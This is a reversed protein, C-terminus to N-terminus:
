SLIFLKIDEKTTIEGRMQAEYLRNLLITFEKSPKLGLAILDKGGILPQLKKTFVNLEKAKKILKEIAEKKTPYYAQLYPAFLNIPIKAALKYITYDTINDLNFTTEKIKFITQTLKKDQTLKNLFTHSSEKSLPTILIALLLALEKSATDIAHLMALCDRKHVTQFENFFALTGLKKLLILAQSPRKALLLMKKFEEFIREKPLEELAGSSVMSQCLLFLKKDIKLHFRASFAVARLIRLPDEQFTETDVAKLVRKKLDDRGNYPDLIKNKEIDYGIANITFDRRKAASKFDIDQLLTVSFGRHGKAIKEERRPLAFDLQIDKYNLKCVGFHKGVSKIPGFEELLKEVQQLSDVGYLEVDIDKSEIGLFFDRVYGGVIVPDINNQLLKQFITQLVAPYHFKKNM